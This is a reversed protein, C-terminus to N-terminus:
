TSNIKKEGETDMVLDFISETDVGHSTQHVSHFSLFIFLFPDRGELLPPDENPLLFPLEQHLSVAKGSLLPFCTVFCSTIFPQFFTVSLIHQLMESSPSIPLLHGSSEAHHVKM